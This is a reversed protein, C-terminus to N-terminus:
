EFCQQYIKPWEEDSLTAFLNRLHVFDFKTNLYNLEWPVQIIDLVEFKCNPIVTNIAALDLGVVNCDPYADAVNEAWRGLGTAVDLVNRLSNGDVPAFFHRDDLICLMMADFVEENKQSGDDMPIVYGTKYDQYLRGHEWTSNYKSSAISLVSDADDIDLERTGAYDEDVPIHTPLNLEEMKSPQSPLTPM